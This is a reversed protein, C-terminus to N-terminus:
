PTPYPNLTTNEVTQGDAEQLHAVCSVLHYLALQFRMVVLHHGELKVQIPVCRILNGRVHHPQARTALDDGQLGQACAPALM